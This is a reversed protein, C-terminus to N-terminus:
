GLTELLALARRSMEALAGDEFPSPIGAEKVLARFPKTGGQRVFHLYTDFAGQYDEQSLLLFHIAVTQALCYDIYYFPSEYIHMQYQWRTGEELYPIGDFSLYPRYTAELARYAAKREAPTMEPHEYVIHQYEDVIVGYPIFSLADLLHKKRYANAMDGFFQETYKWAFFEMSMSHCEATEMSGVNLEWDGYRAICSSALAHGFEHTIVDVDGSGGNFNALIFPQDYKPFCTCYGGGWKGDRSQYDFAEAEMMRRMFAGTTDSMDDYMTVARRFIEEADVVPKPTEGAAYIQDDYFMMRDFGLEAAITEKVQKVCPVLSERVNKRFNAVMDADYDTRDMRYYGLEIFNKYGMKKAQRDRLKVLKDYFTDLAEAHAGLGRGIAEATKRRVDRDADELKGRLMSLPMEEGDYTFVMESMFKSYETVLANEEQVEATIVPSFARTACEFCRFLQTGLKEELAPRFPSSLMRTAYQVQLESFLPGVEDYYAMEGQYYADRTNLTFRCNALSAATVYECLIDMFIGRAAVVADADAAADMAAEFRAFAERGEEITYRAYPLESVKM